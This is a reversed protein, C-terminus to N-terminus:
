TKHGRAEMEYEMESREDARSRRAPPLKNARCVDQRLQLDKDKDKDKDKAKNARCTCVDQCM